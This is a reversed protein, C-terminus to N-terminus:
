DSTIRVYQNPMLLSNGALYGHGGILVYEVVLSQCGVPQWQMPLRSLDKSLLYQLLVESLVRPGSLSISCRHRGYLNIVGDHPIDLPFSFQRLRM